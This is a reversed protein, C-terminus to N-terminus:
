ASRPLREPPFWRTTDGTLQLTQVPSALEIQAQEFAEFIRLNVRQAHEQYDGNAPPSYWYTVQLDLHQPTFETFYVKPAFRAAGVTPHIPERIGPEELVTRLLQVAQLIKDRSTDFALAIDFQRRIYPRRAANEIPDNVISSNPITVLHGGATRVKTSRFGIEEVAGEYGCCKISEGLRFPRDILIMIAGFINKLSDQAALSVALGAIGLGTLWAGIDQGFVGKAISLMGILVVCSRLTKRVLPALQQDLSSGTRSTLRHVMVDVIGMLNYVYWIVSLWFCFARAKHWFWEIDAADALDLTLVGVDVGVLLLGLGIPGSLGTTLQQWVTWGRAEFRRGLWRLATGVVKGLVLGISAFLLALMGQQFTNHAILKKLQLNELLVGADILAEQVVTEEPSPVAEVPPSAVPSVVTGTQSVPGSYSFTGPSVASPAPTQPASAEPGSSYASRVPLLTTPMQAALPSTLGFILALGLLVTRRPLCHCHNM